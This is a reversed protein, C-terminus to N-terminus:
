ENTTSESETEVADMPADEPIVINGASEQILEPGADGSEQEGTPPPSPTPQAVITPTPFLDVLNRAACRAMEHNDRLLRQTLWPQPNLERSAAHALIRVNVDEHALNGEYFGRLEWVASRSLIATLLDGRLKNAQYRQLQGRIREGFFGLAVTLEKTAPNPQTQIWELVRKQDEPHGLATLGLMAPHKMKEDDLTALFILRERLTNLALMGALRAAAPAWPNNPQELYSSLVEAAQDGDLRQPRIDGPNQVMLKGDQYALEPVPEIAQQQVSVQLRRTLEEPLPRGTIVGLNKLGELLRPPILDLRTEQDLGPVSGLGEAVLEYPRRVVQALEPLLRVGQQRPVARIAEDYALLAQMFRRVILKGEDKALRQSGALRLCAQSRFAKLALLRARLRLTESRSLEGSVQDLVRKLRKTPLPKRVLHEHIACFPKAKPSPTECIASPQPYDFLLALRDPAPAPDTWGFAFGALLLSGM